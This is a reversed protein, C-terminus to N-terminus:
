FRIGVHVNNSVYLLNLIDCRVVDIYVLYSQLINLAVNNSTRILFDRLLHNAPNVFNALRAVRYSANNFAYCPIYGCTKSSWNKIFKFSLKRLRAHAEGRAFPKLNPATKRSSKQSSNFVVIRKVNVLIAPGSGLSVSASAYLAPDRIPLGDNNTNSEFRCACYSAGLLRNSTISNFRYSISSGCRAMTRNKVRRTTVARM